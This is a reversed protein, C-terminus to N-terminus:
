EGNLWILVNKGRFFLVFFCKAVKGPDLLHEQVVQVIGVSKLLKTVLDCDDQTAGPGLSVASAGCGVLSPTNPSVRIVRPNPFLSSFHFSLM